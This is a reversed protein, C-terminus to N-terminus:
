KAAPKKTQPEGPVEPKKPAEKDFKASTIVEDGGANKHLKGHAYDGAKVAALNAPKGGVEIESKADVKLVRTGDKKKLTVTNAQKDVSAVMGFFPYWDRKAPAKEETKAKAAPEAANVTPLCILTAALVSGAFLAKFANKMQTVVM